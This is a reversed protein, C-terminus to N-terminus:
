RRQKAEQDISIEKSEIQKSKKSLKETVNAQMSGTVAIDAKRRADSITRSSVLGFKPTDVVAVCEVCKQLQSPPPMRSLQAIAAAADAESFSSSSRSELSVYSGKKETEKFIYIRLFHTVTKTDFGIANWGYHYSRECFIVLTEQVLSQKKGSELMLCSKEQIPNIEPPLNRVSSFNMTNVGIQAARPSLIPRFPYKNSRVLSEIDALVIVDGVKVDGSPVFIETQPALM